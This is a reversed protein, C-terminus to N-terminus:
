KPQNSLGHVMDVWYNDFQFSGSGFRGYQSRRVNQQRKKYVLAGVGVICASAVVAVAVGAKQGSNLGGSSSDPESEVNSANVEADGAVSPAPAPTPSKHPASSNTLTPSLAPSLGSPPPGPPPSLSASPAPSPSQLPTAPSLDPPPSLADAPPHQSSSASNEPPDASFVKNICFVFTFFLVLTLIQIHTNISAMVSKGITKQLDTAQSPVFYYM